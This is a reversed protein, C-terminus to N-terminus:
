SILGEFIIEIDEGYFYEELLPRIKYKMVFAADNNGMFYAHGILYDAGRRDRIIENIKKVNDPLYDDISEMRVFTFRRRLAIDVLAISKDATNMTGIIYLNKPVSFLEKSYSLTVSLENDNVKKYKTDIILRNPILIDPKLKLNGFNNEAQIIATPEISQVIKGVFQEFLVNMDFMFAWENTGVKDFRINLHKLILLALQYLHRFRENLRHWHFTAHPNYYPNVEDFMLHLMGLKRRNDDRKTIRRCVNIAYAFLANLPNDPSFEDYECYIKDRVFNTRADIGALFRGRMVRLNDQVSIYERYLGKEVERILERSFISILLELIPSSETDTSAVSEDVKLDYVYSLMYTLYRLNADDNNKDIKPLVTITKNGIKLAGCYNTARVEGWKESFYRRFEPPIVLDIKEYEHVIM